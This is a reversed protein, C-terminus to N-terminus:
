YCTSRNINIILKALIVSNTLYPLMKILKPLIEPISTKVSENISDNPM